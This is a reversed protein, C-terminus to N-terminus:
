DIKLVELINKATEDPLKKDTEIIIDAKLYNPERKLMIENIRDLSSNKSLLPRHYEDKIRTYIEQASTKLYIVTSNELIIKRNEPNEFAGGGLSVIQNTKDFVFKIKESELIRFHREGFKLFIESIKKGSSKEIEEDIDIFRLNPLLRNLEKGITTKGCGMMGILAVNKKM